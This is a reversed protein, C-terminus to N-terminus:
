PDYSTQNTQLLWPGFRRAHTDSRLRPRTIMKERHRRSATCTRPDSRLFGHSPPEVSSKSSREDSADNQRERRAAAGRLPDGGHIRAVRGQLSVRNTHRRVPKGSRHLPFVEGHHRGVAAAHKRLGVVEVAVARRIDQDEPQVESRAARPRDAHFLRFSLVRRGVREIRPLRFATEDQFVTRDPHRKRATANQIQSLVDLEEVLEVLLEPLLDPAPDDAAPRDAGHGLRLGGHLAEPEGLSVPEVRVLSLEVKAVNPPVHRTLLLRQLAERGTDVPVAEEAPRDAPVVRGLDGPRHALVHGGIAVLRDPPAGLRAPRRREELVLYVAPEPDEPIGPRQVLELGTAEAAAAVRGVLLMRGRARDVQLRALRKRKGERETKVLSALRSRRLREPRVQLTDRADDGKVAGVAPRQLNRGGRGIQLLLKIIPLPPPRRAPRLHVDRAASGPDRRPLLPSRGVRDDGAVEAVRRLEAPLDRAKGVLGRHFNHQLVQLGPLSIGELPRGAREGIENGLLHVNRRLGWPHDLQDRRTSRRRCSRHHISDRQAPGNRRRGLQREGEIGGVQRVDRDAEREIGSSILAALPRVVELERGVRGECRDVPGIADGIPDLPEAVGGRLLRQDRVIEQRLAGIM